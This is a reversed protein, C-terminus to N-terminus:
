IISVTPLYEEGNLSVTKSQGNHEVKVTIVSGKSTHSIKGHEKGARQATCVTM